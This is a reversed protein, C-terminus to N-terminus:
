KAKDIIEKRKVINATSCAYYDKHLANWKEWVEKCGALANVTEANSPVTNSCVDRANRLDTSVTPLVCIEANAVVISNLLIGVALFKKM